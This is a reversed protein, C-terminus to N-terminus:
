AASFTVDLGAGDAGREGRYGLAAGPRQWLQDTTEPTAQVSLLSTASVAAVLLMMWRLMTM